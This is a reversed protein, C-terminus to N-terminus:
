CDEQTDIHRFITVVVSKKCTVVIFVSILLGDIENDALLEEKIEVSIDGFVARQAHGSCEVCESKHTM